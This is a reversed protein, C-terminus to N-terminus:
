QRRPVPRPLLPVQEGKEQGGSGSYGGAGSRLGTTTAGKAAGADLLERKSVRGSDKGRAGARNFMGQLEQMAASKDEPSIDPDQPHLACTDPCLSRKCKSTCGSEKGRAGASNFM